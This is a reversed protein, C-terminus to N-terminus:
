KAMITLFFHLRISGVHSPIQRLRKCVDGVMSSGIFCVHSTAM